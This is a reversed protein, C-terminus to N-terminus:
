NLQEELPRQRPRGPHASISRFKHYVDHLDESLQRVVMMCFDGHERLFALFQDRPIFVATADEDAEATVRYKDGSMIESLGLVSGPGAVELFQEQCKGATLLVRIGGREVVYVGKALSGQQFLISGRPFRESPRIARLAKLLDPSLKGPLSPSSM